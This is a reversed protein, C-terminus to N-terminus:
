PTRYPAGARPSRLARALLTLAVDLFAEPDLVGGLLHTQGARTLLREDWTAAPAGGRLEGALRTFNAARSPELPKGGRGAGYAIERERLAIPPLGAAYVHLFPEFDHTERTSKTEVNRSLLIGGTLVAKGLSLQREKKVVTETGSRFATGRLLLEVTALPAELARGDRTTVALADREVHATRAVVRAHDDELEFGALVLPAFGAADLAAAALAADGGDGFTCVVRPGPGRARSRAELLTLGTAAALRAARPEAEGDFQQIAVVHM